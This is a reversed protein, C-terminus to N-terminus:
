ISLKSVEASLVNIITDPDKHSYFVRPMLLYFKLLKGSVNSLDNNYILVSYYSGLFQDKLYVM